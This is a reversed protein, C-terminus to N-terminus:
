GKRKIIRIELDLLGAIQSSLKQKPHNLHFLQHNKGQIGSGLVDMQEELSLKLHELNPEKEELVMLATVWRQILKFMM